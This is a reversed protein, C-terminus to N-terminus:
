VQDVLKKHEENEVSTCTSPFLSCVTPSTNFGNRSWISRKCGGEEGGGGGEKGDTSSWRRRRRRTREDGDVRIRKRQLPSSKSSSALAWCRSCCCTWSIAADSASRDIVPIDRAIKSALNRSIPRTLQARDVTGLVTKKDAKTPRMRKATFLKLKKDLIWPLTEALDSKAWKFNSLCSRRCGCLHNRNKIKELLPWCMHTHTHHWVGLTDIHTHTIIM